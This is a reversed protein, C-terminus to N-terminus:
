TWPVEETFVDGTYDFVAGFGRVCNPHQLPNRRMWDVTVTKGSVKRCFEHSNDFGNDFVEVHKVGAAQYRGHTAVNQGTGIETRAVARSRGKYTEAVLGHVQRAMEEVPVGAPYADRLYDALALRTTEAIGKVHKGAERLAAQVAPDNVNFQATSQLELNLYPWTLEIVETVHGKILADLEGNHQQFLLNLVQAWDRRTLEKVALVGSVATVTSGHGNGGMSRRTIAPEEKALALILDDALKDFWGDVDKEMRGAVEARVVRKADVIVKRRESTLAKNQKEGEDPATDEDTPPPESVAQGPMPLPATDELEDFGTVATLGVEQRAENRTIWQRRGQVGVNLRTYLKDQDEQLARVDSIDFEMVIKPDSHFNRTLSTNIREADFRWNPVLKQETFLERLERANALTARELGAGLGALIAPVGIVAAIREEPIRHIISLDMDKPSFGFQRVDGYKSLVAVKGRNNGSFKDSMASSVREAVEKDIIEGQGPIVVLGPVAYNLLLANTFKDAEEDSSIQRVLRKLPSLGKRMDAPDVGLRFHVVNELPVPEWVGPSVQMEYGTLWEMARGRDDTQTYPRMLAPSVPWLEVVNGRRADGSRVMVWYANGDTHKAWNTWFYLEPLTLEGKPTPRSLLTLLPSDPIPKLTGDKEKRVVRPPPETVATCLTLLCAFVASNADGGSEWRDSAGPGHVLTEVRQWNIDSAPTFSKRASIPRAPILRQLLSM